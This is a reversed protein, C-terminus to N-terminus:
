KTHPKHVPASILDDLAENTELTPVAVDHHLDDGEIGDIDLSFERHINDQRQAPATVPRHVYFHGPFYVGCFMCTLTVLAQVKRLLRKCNSLALSAGWAKMAALPAHFSPSSSESLFRVRRLSFRKQNFNVIVRVADKLKRAIM